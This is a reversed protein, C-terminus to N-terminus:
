WCHHNIGVGDSHRPVLGWPVGTHPSFPCLTHPYLHICPCALCLWAQYHLTCAVSYNAKNQAQSGRKRNALVLQLKSFWAQNTSFHFWITHPTNHQGFLNKRCMWNGFCDSTDKATILPFMKNMTYHQCASTAEATHPAHAVTHQVCM